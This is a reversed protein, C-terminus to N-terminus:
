FTYRASVQVNRGPASYSDKVTSSDALGRVESWRWYKRDFVNNVTASITLDPLPSWYAGLDLVTYGAPAFPATNPPTPPAIRDAQKAASHLLTARAGWSLTDYRLGLVARWPQISDLPTTTGAAETEGRSWAFGGNLTWRPDITWETRAEVGHIRANSFNIYQFVLPDTPTGSGAVIQQSIFDRYRSEYAAVSYRLGQLKGRVGVEVSKAHEAKLKPNGVSRYGSALNTFGNNVQDPTPAHFGTAFQAYPAFAEALRWVAGIRPTVAQDSLAAVTGGVYGEQSPDLRYKDFRLGPIISFAGAEIEDQVFAGFLTYTTDPFAKTPFTEGFPAVTGDRVGSVKSRSWDFGYSLRQAVAASKLNTELQTSIGVVNQQYTNDRTRDAATNRDEFTQQSVKGDQSYLQTQARQIWSAGPDSFRHELSVRDRSVKDHALLGITSTAALPPLARASLVDTDQRREQSELTLGLQNAPTLAFQLKGLLYRGDADVPNPATRTVDSSTNEGRNALEHGQRYTGLLLGQWAGSRGAGALTTTWSRDVEAYSLRASGGFSRGTKILDGPEPTRLSIVGALGDSGYQTSAPGRLVELTQAGSVDIFDGRGTAFSGFSFSNPVRIGDILMLVQNGELGRVNISDNGARGTGSAISFRTPGSLVSVDLENRFVDRIDRAGSEEIMEATTVTVSNPVDDARRPTRTSTISIARLMTTPSSPSSAASAPALPTQALTTAPAFSWAVGLALAVPTKRLM